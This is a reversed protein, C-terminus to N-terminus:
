HITATHCMTEIWETVSQESYEAAEVVRKYDAAPLEITIIAKKDPKVPALTKKRQTM